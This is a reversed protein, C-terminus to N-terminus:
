KSKKPPHANKERINKLFLDTDYTKRIIGTTNGNPIEMEIKLIKQFLM